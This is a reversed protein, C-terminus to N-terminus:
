PTARAELYAKMRAELSAAQDGPNDPPDSLLKRYKARWEEARRNAEALAEAAAKRKREAEAEWESVKATQEELSAKLESNSVTLAAKEASLTTITTSQDLIASTMGAMKFLPIAAGLCLALLPIGIKEFM